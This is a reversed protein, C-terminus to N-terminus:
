PCPLGHLPTSLVDSPNPAPGHRPELEQLELITTMQDGGRPVPAPTWRVAPAAEPSPPTRLADDTTTEPRRAPTSRHRPPSGQRAAATRTM